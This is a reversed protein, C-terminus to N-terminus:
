KRRRRGTYEGERAPRTGENGHDKFEYPMMRHRGDHKPVEDPVRHQTEYGTEEGEQHGPGHDPPCHGSRHEESTEWAGSRRQPEQPPPPERDRRRLGYVVALILVAVVALGAVFPAIGVLHDRKVALEVVVDSASGTPYGTTPAMSQINM